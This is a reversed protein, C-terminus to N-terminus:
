RNITDVLAKFGQGDAYALEALARRDLSINNKKLAGMFASYSMGHERVAANIRAVWLQRFERKKQKRDRFAFALGRNVAEHAVKFLKNKKGYYGSARKLIRKHRRRTVVGSKVRAM